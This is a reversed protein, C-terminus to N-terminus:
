ARRFYVDQMGVPDLSQTSWVEFVEFHGKQLFLCVPSKYGVASRVSTHDLPHGWVPRGSSQPGSIGPWVLGHSAAPDEPTSWAAANGPGRAPQLILDCSCRWCQFCKCLKQWCWVSYELSKMIVCAALIYGQSCPSVTTLPWVALCASAPSSIPSCSETTTRCSTSRKRRMLHYATWRSLLNSCSLANFALFTLLFSCSSLPTM